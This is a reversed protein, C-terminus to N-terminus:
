GEAIKRAQCNKKSKEPSSLHEVPVRKTMPHKKPEKSVEMQSCVLLQGPLPMPMPMPLSERPAPWKCAKGVEWGGTGAQLGTNRTDPEKLFSQCSAPRGRGCPWGTWLFWMSRGAMGPLGVQEWTVSPLERQEVLLGKSWIGHMLYWVRHGWSVCPLNAKIGRDSHKPDSFYEQGRGM